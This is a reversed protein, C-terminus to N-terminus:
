NVINTISIFPTTYSHAYDNGGVPNATYTGYICAGSDITFAGSGGTWPTEWLGLEGLDDDYDSQNTGGILGVAVASLGSSKVALIYSGAPLGLPTGLTFTYISRTAAASIALSGTLTLLECDTDTYTYIATNAQRTGGVGRLWANIATLSGPESLTYYTGYKSGPLTQFEGVGSVTTGFTAM